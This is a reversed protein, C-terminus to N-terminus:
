DIRIYCDSASSFAPLGVPLQWNYQRATPGGHTSESGSMPATGLREIQIDGLRIM